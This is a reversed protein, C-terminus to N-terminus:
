RSRDEDSARSSSPGAPLALYFVIRAVTMYPAPSTRTSVTGSAWRIADVSELTSAAQQVWQVLTGLSLHAGFLDSLLERVRGYPVLQQEVLYVVLARLHPGYQARSPAEAPFAGVTVTQCQPCRLHLAQHERVVLRLPPVEHVQRRERLVEPADGGTLPAQCARCVLPRHEVVADPRAVLHLTEGRHGLQRGAKNGSRKRLSKTKRAVRGVGDSSPPTM